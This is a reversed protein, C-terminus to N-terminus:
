RLEAVAREEGDLFVPAAHFWHDATLHHEIGALVEGVRRDEADSDPRRIARVRRDAMRWLDPLMSGVAAEPSGLDRAALHHHLLFNVRGLLPHWFVRWRAM